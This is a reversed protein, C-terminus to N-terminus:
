KVTLEQEVLKMSWDQISTGDTNLHAVMYYLRQASPTDYELRDQLYYPPISQYHISVRVKSVKGVSGPLEYRIRRLDPQEQPWPVPRKTAPDMLWLRTYQSYPGGEKWGRPLLRTDKAEAVIELFSTTLVMKALDAEKLNTEVLRPESTPADRWTVTREEFIYADKESNIYPRGTQIRLPDRTTENELVQQQGDVLQGASNTRGSAWLVKGTADLAEFRVFARRMGVGSPFKHGVLNRVTVDFAQSNAQVAKAAQAVSLAVTEEQAFRVMEQEATQLPARATPMRGINASSNGLASPFQQFMQNAFVNLGVLTHRRYDAKPTPTILTDAARNALDPMWATEVNAIVSSLNRTSGTPTSPTRSPMHCDQCSRAEQGAFASNLWELYTTQEYSTRYPKSDRAAAKQQGALIPTIVTHCSGCLESDQIHKGYRPVYDIAQEMFYPTIAADAYPGFIPGPKEPFHFQGTFTSPKGLEEAEVQHCVTCTVGERALAGWQAPRDIHGQPELWAYDATFAPRTGPPAIVAPDERDGHDLHFQRQAGAQHCRLCFNSIEAGLVPRKQQEWSLQAHFIPDKGALGMMSASWESYPSLDNVPRLTPDTVTSQTDFAVMNPMQGGQLLYSWHCGNCNDSTIFTDRCDETGSSSVPQSKMRQRPVPGQASSFTRQQECVASPSQRPLASTHSFLYDLPFWSLSTESAPLSVRTGFANTIAANPRPLPTVTQQQFGARYYTELAYTLFEGLDRSSLAQLFDQILKDLLGILRPNITTAPGGYMRAVEPKLHPLREDILRRLYAEKDKPSARQLDQLAQRLVPLHTGKPAEQLRTRQVDSPQVLRQFQATGNAFMARLTDSTEPQPQAGKTAPPPAFLGPTVQQIWSSEQSAGKLNQLSAYTVQDNDAAAHCSLCFSNGSQAYVVLLPNNYPPSNPFFFLYWLWGDKSLHSNRVLVAWGSARDAGYESDTPDAAYMQKVIVEGDRIAGKRGDRLWGVVGDSYFTRVRQHTDFGKGQFVPGTMRIDESLSAVDHTWGLHGGVFLFLTLAALQEGTVLQGSTETQQFGALDQTFAFAISSELRKKASEPSAYNALTVPGDYCRTEWVPKKAADVGCQKVQGHATSVALLVLAGVCALFKM